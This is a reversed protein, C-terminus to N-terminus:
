FHLSNLWRAFFFFLSSFRVVTNPSLRLVDLSANFGLNSTQGKSHGVVTAALLVVCCLAKVMVKRDVHELESFDIARTM